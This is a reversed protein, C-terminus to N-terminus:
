AAGLLAPSLLSAAARDLLWMVEGHAPDIIQAPYRDPDRPGELATRVAEAKNQGAVIFMVRAASNLVPPTLTLRRPQPADVEVAVALRRSEHIAPIGPFLSAIHVNDGLGLLVLDFRPFEGESLSFFERLQEECERAGQEPDDEGRMRHIQEPDLTLKSLMTRNAMGYNSAEDDPPVCREDGWFLHVANWDVSLHFRTAILSYVDAPTNGGTLCWAFQGHTCISEGSIHVIEEAARVFLSERDDLVIIQPKAM